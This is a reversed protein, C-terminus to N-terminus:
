RPHRGPLGPHHVRLRAGIQPQRKVSSAGLRCASKNKRSPASAARNAGGSRFLLSKKLVCARLIVGRSADVLIASCKKSSVPSVSASSQSHVSCIGVMEPTFPLSWSTSPPPSAVCGSPSKSSICFVMVRSWSSVCVVDVIKHM